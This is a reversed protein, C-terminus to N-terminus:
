RIPSFSAPVLIKSEQNILMPSGKSIFKEIWDPDEFLAARHKMRDDLSEYAWIHVVQNLTGIETHWWGILTAYRSIIPLGEKEFHRIYEQTRGPAITYTRLEYLMRSDKRAAHNFTGDRRSSAGTYFVAARCQFQSNKM